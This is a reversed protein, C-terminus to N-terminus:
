GAKIPEQKPKIIVEKICVASIRFLSEIFLIAASKAYFLFSLKDKTLLRYDKLIDITNGVMELFSVKRMKLNYHYCVNKRQLLKRLGTSSKVIADHTLNSAIYRKDRESLETKYMNNLYACYTMRIKKKGFFFNDNNYSKTKPMKDEDVRMTENIILPWYMVTCSYRAGLYGNLLDYPFDFDSQLEKFYPKSIENEFLETKWFFGSPHKSLYASHLVSQVGKEYVVEHIPKDNSLDIYGFNPKENQLYDIFRSLLKVDLTDKDILLLIYASKSDKLASVFNFLAGENGENVHFILRSDQIKSLEEVTGDTSRNDNVKIQFRSDEVSLYDLIDPILVLKRNYTPKCITLVLKNLEEKRTM